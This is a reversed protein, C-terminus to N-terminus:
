VHIAPTSGRLASRRGAMVTKNKFTRSQKTAGEVLEPAGRLSATFIVGTAVDHGVVVVVRM